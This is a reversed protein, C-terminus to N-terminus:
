QLNPRSCGTDLTESEPFLVNNDEKGQRDGFLPHLYGIEPDGANQRLLSTKLPSHLHEAILTFLSLIALAARIYSDAALIFIHLRQLFDEQIAEFSHRRIRIM